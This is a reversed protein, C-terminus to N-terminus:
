APDEVFLATGEYTLNLLYYDVDLWRIAITLQKYEFYIMWIM